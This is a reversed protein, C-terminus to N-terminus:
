VNFYLNVVQIFWKAENEFTNYWMQKLQFHRKINWYHVSAFDSVEKNQEVENSVLNITIHNLVSFYCQNLGNMLLWHM